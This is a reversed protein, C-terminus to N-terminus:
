GRTTARVFLIGDGAPLTGARLHRWLQRSPIPLARDVLDAVTALRRRATATEPVAIVLKFTRDDGQALAQRKLQASRLQAQFDILAREIEIHVSGADSSLVLDAARLDDASVPVELQARWGRHAARVIAQAIQLQGSDRLSVSRTPYLRWGLEHGAAAALRCRADLSVDRSGREAKSVEPQSVRALRALQV